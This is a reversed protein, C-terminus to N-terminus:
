AAPDLGKQRMCVCVCVSKDCSRKTVMKLNQTHSQCPECSHISGTHRQMNTDADQMSSTSLVFLALHSSVNIDHIILTAGGTNDLHEMLLSFVPCPACPQVKM